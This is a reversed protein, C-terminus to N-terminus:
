NSTTHNLTTAAPCESVCLGPRSAEVTDIKPGMRLWGGPHLLVMNEVLSNERRHSWSTVGIWTPLTWLRPPGALGATRCAIM